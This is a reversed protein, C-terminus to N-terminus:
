RPHGYLYADARGDSRIKVEMKYEDPFDVIGLKKRWMDAKPHEDFHGQNNGYDPRKSPDGDSNSVIQAITLDDGQFSRPQWKRKRRTDALQDDSVDSSDDLGEESGQRRPRSGLRSNGIKEELSLSCQNRKRAAMQLWNAVPVTGRLESWAPRKWAVCEGTELIIHQSLSDESNRLLRDREVIRFERIQKVDLEWGEAGSSCAVDGEYGAVKCSKSLGQENMAENTAQIGVYCRMKYDHWLKELAAPGLTLFYSESGGVRGDPFIAAGRGLIQTLSDVGKIPYTVAVVHTKPSHFGYGLKGVIILVDVDREAYFRKTEETNDDKQLTLIKFHPAHAKFHREYKQLQTKKYDDYPLGMRLADAKRRLDLSELIAKAFNFQVIPNKHFQVALKRFRKAAFDLDTPSLLVPKQSPRKVFIEGFLDCSVWLTSKIHGHRVAEAHTTEFILDYQHPNRFLSTPPTATLGIIPTSPFLGSLKNLAPLNLQPEDVIILAPELVDEDKLSETSKTRVSKKGQLRVYDKILIQLTVFAVAPGHERNWFSNYPMKEATRLVIVPDRFCDKESTELNPLVKHKAFSSNAFDYSGQAKHWGTFQAYLEDMLYIRDSTFIIPGDTVSACIFPVLIAVLTKGVGTPLVVIGRKAGGSVFEGIKELADIQPARLDDRIVSRRLLERLNRRLMSTFIRNRNKLFALKRIFAAHENERRHKEKLLENKENREKMLDSRLMKKESREDVLANRLVGTESREKQLGMHLVGDGKVRKALEARLTGTECREKELETRLIGEERQRHALDGRLSGTQGKERELEERLVGQVMKENVLEERLVGKQNRQNQLDGNLAERALKEYTLERRLSTSYNREEQLNARLGEREAREATLEARLREIDRKQKKSETRLRDAERHTNDNHVPLLLLPPAPLPWPYFYAPCFTPPM